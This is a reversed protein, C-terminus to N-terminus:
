FHVVIAINLTSFCFCVFFSGTFSWSDTWFIQIASSTTTILPERRAEDSGQYLIVGYFALCKVLARFEHRQLSTVWSSRTERLWPDRDSTNLKTHLSTTQPAAEHAGPKRDRPWVNPKTWLLATAAPKLWAGWERSATPWSYCSPSWRCIVAAFPNLCM